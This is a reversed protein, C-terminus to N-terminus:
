LLRALDEVGMVRALRLQLRRIQDRTAQALPSNDGPAISALCGAIADRIRHEQALNTNGAYVTFEWLLTTSQELKWESYMGMATDFEAMRAPTELSAMRQRLAAMQGVLVENYRLFYVLFQCHHDCMWYLANVIRGIARREEPDNWAKYIAAYETLHACLIERERQPRHELIDGLVVSLSALTTRAKDHVAQAPPDMSEFVNDPYYATMWMTLFARTNITHTPWIEGLPVRPLSIKLLRRFLKRATV